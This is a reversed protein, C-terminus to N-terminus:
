FVKTMKVGNCRSKWQVLVQTIDMMPLPLGMAISLRTDQVSGLRYFVVQVLSLVVLDERNHIRPCLNDADYSSLNSHFAYIKM